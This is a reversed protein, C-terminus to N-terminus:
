GVNQLAALLSSKDNTKWFDEACEVVRENKQIVMAKYRKNEGSTIDGSEELKDLLELCKRAQQRRGSLWEQQRAEEEAFRLSCDM